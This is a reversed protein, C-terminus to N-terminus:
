KVLYDLVVAETKLFVINKNVTDFATGASFLVFVCNLMNFLM